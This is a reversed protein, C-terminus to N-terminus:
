GPYINRESKKLVMKIVSGKGMLSAAMSFLYAPASLFILILCQLFLPFSREYTLDGKLSEFFENRPWGMANLVTQLLGFPGLEFCFTKKGVVRFHNKKIIYGLSSEDFHFKHWPIDLHFWFHKFYKAETSSFNPVALILAGEPSLLEHLKRMTALPNDLHELVHWLFILDFMGDKLDFSALDGKMYVIHEPNLFRRAPYAPSEVGWCECGYGLFANLLRGEACGLDLVRPRQISDSIFSLYHKARLGMIRNRLKQLVPLFKNDHKGYYTVKDRNLLTDNSPFPFTRAVQCGECQVLQFDSNFTRTSFLIKAKLHNCIPCRGFGKNKKM